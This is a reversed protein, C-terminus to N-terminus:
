DSTLEQTCVYLGAPLLCLWVTASLRVSMCSTLAVGDPALRFVGPAAGVTHKKPETGARAKKALLDKYEENYVEMMSAQMTFAWGQTEALKRSSDFIQTMARPIMGPCEKSGLMTYTKGSGTQGYAFICVQLSRLM